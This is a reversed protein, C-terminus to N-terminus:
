ISGIELFVVGFGWGKLGFFVLFISEEGLVGFVTVIVFFCVFCCFRLWFGVLRFGLM